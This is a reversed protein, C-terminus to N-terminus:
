REEFKVGAKVAIHGCLWAPGILLFQVDEFFSPKKGELWHGYFQGLWAIAFVVLALWVLSLGSQAILTCLALCALTFGTMMLGITWHLRWYFALIPLAVLHALRWDGDIFPVPVSYCLAAVTWYITPVMLWHIFKNVPHQHSQGYQAFWTAATKM